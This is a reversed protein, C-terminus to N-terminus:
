ADKQKKMVVRKRKGLVFYFYRNIVVILIGELLLIVLAMTVNKIFNNDFLVFMKDSCKTALNMVRLDLHTVLIILSNKGIFEIPGCEGYWRCLMLLGATIGVGSVVFLAVNGLQLYRLSTMSNVMGALSGLGLCAVGLMFGLLKKDELKQLLLSVGEGLAVFLMCFIGRWIAFALKLCFVDVALERGAVYDPVFSILVYVAAMGICLILSFLYRIKTRLLRYSVVAIFYAPLFWLVSIGYLSFFDEIKEKMGDASYQMPDLFIGVADWTIALLSFWFYPVLVNKAYKKWLVPVRDTKQRETGYLYGAVLFFLVMHFSYIWQLWSEEIRNTHGLVVFFIGIGKLIDIYGLREKKETNMKTEM